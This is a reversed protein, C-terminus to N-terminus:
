RRCISAVPSGCSGPLSRCRYARTGGPPAGAQGGGGALGPQRDRQAPVAADRGTGASRGAAGAGCRRKESAQWVRAVLATSPSTWATKRGAAAKLVDPRPGPGGAASRCLAREAGPQAAPQLDTGPRNCIGCRSRPTWPVPAAGGCRRRYDGVSLFVFSLLQGAQVVPLTWVRPAPWPTPRRATPWHAQTTVPWPGEIRCLTCDTWVREAPPRPDDDRRATHWCPHSATPRQLTARLHYASARKVLRSRCPQTAREWGVTQAGLGCLAAVRAQAVPIAPQAPRGHCNAEFAM